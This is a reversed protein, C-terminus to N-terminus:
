LNKLAKKAQEFNPDLELAKEYESKALEKNEKQKYIHGLLLHTFAFSPREDSPEIQLYKQLYAEGKDLNKGSMVVIRGLHFYSSVEDPHTKLLDEFLETAKDFQKQRAYLYGLSYHPQTNDPNAAIAAQLQEEALAYEENMMYIVGFALHGQHPNRQKIAEAQEKAKDKSGGMIGPAMQYFQLLGMRADINDPNLEVAQEFHKKVNKAASAKKLLGARQAKMGYANGLWFHYDSNTEDLHVAKNLWDISKEYNGERLFLRGLYYAGTPDNQNAKTYSEFFNKAEPYKKAEFLQIGTAIESNIQSQIIRPSFLCFILFLISLSKVKLIDM